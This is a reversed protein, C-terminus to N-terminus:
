YNLLYAATPSHNIFLEEFLEDYKPHWRREQSFLNTLNSLKEGFFKTDIELCKGKYGIYCISENGEKWYKSYHLFNEDYLNKIESEFTDPFLRKMTAKFTSEKCKVGYMLFTM